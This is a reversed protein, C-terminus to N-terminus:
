KIFDVLTPQIIRAGASLSARYVNEENKLKMIVEAMDADENKSMLGTFNVYDNELRNKTLELYNVRGGIDARVKLLQDVDKDFEGILSSIQDENGSDIAAELDTFSKFIRENAGDWFLEYGEVNVQIRNGVSIEYVIKQGTPSSNIANGQYNLDGSMDVDFPPADTRFGAFIYRGAYTSNGIEVVSNKLQSIEAKIKQKDDNDLTGNAAQVTLERARQVLNELNELAQETTELWSLADETNKQFQEIESVNTRFKLARSAVIPDDSPVRIKKGNAMQQQVKDLRSLNNNLNIMMNRIM